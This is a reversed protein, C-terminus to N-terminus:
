GTGHDIRQQVFYQLRAAMASLPLLDLSPTFVCEVADATEFIVTTGLLEGTKARELLQELLLVTSKNILEEDSPQDSAGVGFKLQIVNTDSM